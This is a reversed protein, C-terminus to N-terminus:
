AETTVPEAADAPADSPCVLRCYMQALRRAFDVLERESVHIANRPLEPQSYAALMEAFREDTPPAFPAPRDTMAIHGKANAQRAPSM